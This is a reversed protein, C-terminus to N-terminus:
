MLYVPLPTNDIKNENDQIDIPKDQPIEVEKVNDQLYTKEDGSFLFSTIIFILILSKKLM